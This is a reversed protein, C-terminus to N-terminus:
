KERVFFSSFLQTGIESIKLKLHVRGPERLLAQFDAPDLSAQLIDMSSDPIVACTADTFCLPPYMVCWWNKGKGEGLTILCTDYTGAPFTCSGYTKEPFHCPSVQLKVTAPHGLSAMYEETQRVLEASHSSLYEALEPKTCNTGVSQSVTNLFLDRVKLKCNQDELSDSEALIRFRLIDPSIRGALQEGQQLHYASIFISIIFVSLFVHHLHKM